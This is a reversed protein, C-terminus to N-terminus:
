LASYLHALGTIELNTVDLKYRVAPGYLRALFPGPRFYVSEIPGKGSRLDRIHCRGFRAHCALAEFSAGSESFSRAKSEVALVPTQRRESM